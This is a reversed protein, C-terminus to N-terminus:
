LVFVVKIEEYRKEVLLYFIVYIVIYFDGCEIGVVVVDVVDSVSMGKGMIKVGLDKVVNLGELLVGFCDVDYFEIFMLGLCFFSIKVIEFLEDCMVDVIGFLVIKIVM